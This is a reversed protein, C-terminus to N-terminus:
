NDPHVLGFNGDPRRHIANVAGTEANFFLMFQDNNERMTAIVDDTFLPKLAYTTTSVIEGTTVEQDLDVDEGSDAIFGEDRPMVKHSKEKDHHKRLQRSVKDIVLDLAAYADGAQEEGRVTFGNANVTIEASQTTKEAVFTVRADIIGHYYKELKQVKSEAYERLPDSSDMQRFTTNIQM